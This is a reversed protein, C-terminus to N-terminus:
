WFPRTPVASTYEGAMRSVEGGLDRSSAAPLAEEGASSLHRSSSLRMLAVMGPPPTM